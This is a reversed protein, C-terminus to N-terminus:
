LSREINRRIFPVKSSYEQNHRRESHPITILRYWNDIDNATLDDCITPYVTRWQALVPHQFRIRNGSHINGKVPGSVSINWAAGRAVSIRRRERYNSDAFFFQSSCITMRTPPLCVAYCKSPDLKAEYKNISCKLYLVTSELLKLVCFYCSLFHDNNNDSEEGIASIVIISVGWFYLCM